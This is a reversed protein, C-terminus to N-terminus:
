LWSVGDFFGNAPEGKNSFLTAAKMKAELRKAQEGYYTEWVASPDLDDLEGNKVAKAYPDGERGEELAELGLWYTIREEESADDFLGAMFAALETQLDHFEILESRGFTNLEYKAKISRAVLTEHPMPQREFSWEAHVLKNRWKAEEVLGKNLLRTFAQVPSSVRSGPILDELIEPVVSLYLSRIRSASKDYVIQQWGQEGLVNQNRRLGRTELTTRAISNIQEHRMTIRGILESFLEFTEDSLTSKKVRKKREFENM